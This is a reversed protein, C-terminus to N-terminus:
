IDKKVKEEQEKSNILLNANDGYAFSLIAPSLVQIIIRGNDLYYITEYDCKDSKIASLEYGDGDYYSGLFTENSKFPTGYKDTYDNKFSFYDRKLSEWSTYQETYAAVMYVIHSISTRSIDITCNEGAFKGKMFFQNEKLYEKSYPTFGLSEMKSIFAELKGTIPVGMFKMHEQANINFTCICILLLYIYRKM